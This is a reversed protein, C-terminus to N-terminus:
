CRCDVTKPREVERRMVSSSNHFSVIEKVLKATRCPVTSKEVLIARSKANIAVERIASEMATMDTAFGAGIGSIKTNTNVCIFVMDAESICKATETSFFLNPKRPPEKSGDRTIRVINHLGPEDLPLHSSNWRRIRFADRDIVTVRISPNKLAVVAATPVGALSADSVM